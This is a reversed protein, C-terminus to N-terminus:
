HEKKSGNDNLKNALHGVRARMPDSKVGQELGAAPSPTIVLSHMVILVRMYCQLMYHECMVSDRQIYCTIDM